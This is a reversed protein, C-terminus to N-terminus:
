EANAARVAIAVREVARLVEAVAEWHQALFVMKFVSEVTGEPGVKELDALDGRTVLRTGGMGLAGQVVGELGVLEMRVMEVPTNQTVWVAEQRGERVERVAPETAQDAKQWFREQPVSGAIEERQALHIVERVERV